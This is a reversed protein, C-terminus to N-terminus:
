KYHFYYYYYHFMMSAFVSCASSVILFCQLPFFITNETQKSFFPLLVRTLLSYFLLVHWLFFPIFYLCTFSLSSFPFLPLCVVLSFVLSTFLLYFLFSLDNGWHIFSGYQKVGHTMRVKVQVQKENVEERWRDSDRRASFAKQLRRQSVTNWFASNMQSDLRCSNFKAEIQKKAVCVWHLPTYLLFLFVFACSYMFDSVLKIWHTQLLHAYFVFVCMEPRNPQLALHDESDAQPLVCVPFAPHKHGLCLHTAASISQM